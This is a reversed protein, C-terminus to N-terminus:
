SADSEPACVQISADVRYRRGCECLEEGNEADLVRRVGCPCVIAVTFESWERRTRMWDVEVWPTM